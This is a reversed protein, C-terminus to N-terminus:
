VWCYLVADEHNGSHSRVAFQYEPCIQLIYEPIQVLDYPEHYICMCLKPKVKRIIGSAGKLLDMEAGEIDAKILTPPTKDAFYGDLSCLRVEISGRLNDSAISANLGIELFHVSGSESGVCANIIQIDGDDLAWEEKLRQVRKELANCAKVSPEFAYLKCTGLSRRIYDETVDGVFAGVDCIIENLPQVFQKIGFYHNDSTQIYAADYTLLYWVVGLYAARSNDDDLLTMVSKAREWIYATQLADSSTYPVGAEDLQRAIQRYYNECTSIIVFYEDEFSDISEWPKLLIPKDCAKQGVLEPNNDIFFDAEIGYENKLRNYSKQAYNGAPFIAIKRNCLSENRKKQWMVEREILTTMIQTSATPTSIHM